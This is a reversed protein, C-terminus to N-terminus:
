SRNTSEGCLTRFTKMVEASDALTLTDIDEMTLDTLHAFLFTESEVPDKSHRQAKRMDGRTPVRMVLETLTEGTGTILPRILPIKTDTLFTSDKM